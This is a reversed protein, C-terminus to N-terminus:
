TSDDNSNTVRVYAIWLKMSDFLQGERTVIAGSPLLFGVRARLREEGGPSPICYTVQGLRGCVESDSPMESTAPKFGEAAPARIRSISGYQTEQLSRAMPVDPYDFIESM